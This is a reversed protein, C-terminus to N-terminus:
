YGLFSGFGRNLCYKNFLAGTDPEKNARYSMNLFAQTLYIETKNSKINNM